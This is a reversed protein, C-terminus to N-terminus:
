FPLEYKPGLAAQSTVTFLESIPDTNAGNHSFLSTMWLVPLVYCIVSDDSFSQVVAVPFM